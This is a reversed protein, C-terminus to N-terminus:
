AGDYDATFYIEGTGARKVTASLLSLPVGVHQPAFENFEAQFTIRAARVTQVSPAELPPQFTQISTIWRRWVVGRHGLYIYQASMLINRVLRICRYLERSAHTSATEHGDVADSSVGYAYCDIFYSATCKQQAVTNGTKMDFTCSDFTVNVIPSVDLPDAASEADRFDEWPAFADSFVRFKWLRPDELATTALAQQAATEAVLIAAIEDLIIEQADRDTILTPITV